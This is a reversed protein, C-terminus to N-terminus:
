CFFHFLSVRDQKFDGEYVSGCEKLIGKGEKRGAVWMGDYRSAGGEAEWIGM